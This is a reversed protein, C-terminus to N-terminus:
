PETRWILIDRSPPPGVAFSTQRGSSGVMMMSSSAVAEFLENDTTTAITTTGTVDSARGTKRGGGEAGSGSRVAALAARYQQNRHHGSESASDDFTMRRADIEEARMAADPSSLANNANNNNTAGAGNGAGSNGGSSHLPTLMLSRGSGRAASGLTSNSIPVGNADLPPNPNSSGGGMAPIIGATTNARSVRVMGSTTYSVKLAAAVYAAASLLERKRQVFWSLLAGIAMLVFGFAILWSHNQWGGNGYRDAVDQPTDGLASQVISPDRQPVYFAAFELFWIFIARSVLTIGKIGSGSGGGIFSSSLIERNESGVGGAIGGSTNSHSPMGGSGDGSATAVIVVTGNRTAATTATAFPASLFQMRALFLDSLTSLFLCIFLSLTILQLTRSGNELACLTANSDELHGNDPGVKILQFLGMCGAVILTGILGQTYTIELPSIGASSSNNSSSGDNNNPKSKTAAGDKAQGTASSSVAANQEDPLNAFPYPFAALARLKSNEYSQQAVTVLNSAVVLSIGIFAQALASLGGANNPITEGPAPAPGDWSVPNGEQQEQGLVEGAAVVMVGMIAVVLGIVEGRGMGMPPGGSGSKRAKTAVAGYPQQQGSSEEDGASGGEAGYGDGDDGSGSGSSGCGCICSFLLAFALLSLQLAATTSAAIFLLSTVTLLTAIVELLSPLFMSWLRHLLWSTRVCCRTCLSPRASSRRRQSSSHHHGHGYSGHDNAEASSACCYWCMFFCCCLSGCGSEPHCCVACCGADNASTAALSQMMARKRAVSAASTASRVSESDAQLFPEESVGSSAAPGVRASHRPSRFLMSIPGAPGSYNVAKTAEDQDDPAESGRSRCCGCLLERILSFCWGLLHPLAYVSMAMFTLLTVFMPKEFNGSPLNCSPPAATDLIAHELFLATGGFVAAAAVASVLGFTTLRCCPLKRRATGIALTRRRKRPAQEM